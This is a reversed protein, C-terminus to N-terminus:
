SISAVPMNKSFNEHGGEWGKLPIARILLIAELSHGM